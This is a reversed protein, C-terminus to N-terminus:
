RLCSTFIDAYNRYFKQVPLDHCCSLTQFNQLYIRKLLPIKKFSTALYEFAQTVMLFAYSMVMKNLLTNKRINMVSTAEALVLELCAFLVVVASLSIAFM